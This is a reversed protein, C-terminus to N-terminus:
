KPFVGAIFTKSTKYRYAAFDHRAATVTIEWSVSVDTLDGILEIMVRYIFPQHSDLTFTKNSIENM